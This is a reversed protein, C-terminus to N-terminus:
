VETIRIRGVFQTINGSVDEITLVERYSGPAVGDTATAALEVEFTGDVDSRNVISAGSDDLSLTPETEDGLRWSLTAGTLDQTSGAPETVSFPLRRTDGQPIEVVPSIRTM